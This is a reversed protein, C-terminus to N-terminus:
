LLRTNRAPARDVLTQRISQLFYEDPETGYEQYLERFEQEAIEIAQRLFAPHDQLLLGLCEGILFLEELDEDLIEQDDM